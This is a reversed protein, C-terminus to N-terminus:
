PFHISYQLHSYFDLWHLLHRVVGHCHPPMKTRQVHEWLCWHDECYSWMSVCPLASWGGSSGQTRRSSGVVVACRTLAYLAYCVDNKGKTPPLHYAISCPALTFWEALARYPGPVNGPWLSNEVWASRAWVSCMCSPSVAKTGWIRHSEELM